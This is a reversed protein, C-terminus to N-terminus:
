FSSVCLTATHGSKGCCLPHGLCPPLQLVVGILVHPTAVRGLAWGRIYLHPHSCPRGVLYIPPRAVVGDLYTLITVCDGGRYLHPTALCGGTQIAM